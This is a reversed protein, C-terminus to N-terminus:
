SRLRAKLEARDAYDDGDPEDEDRNLAESAIKQLPKCIVIDGSAITDLAEWMREIDKRMDAILDDKNAYQSMTYEKM